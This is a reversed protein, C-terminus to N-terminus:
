LRYRMQWRCQATHTARVTAPAPHQRQRGGGGTPAGGALGTHADQAGAWSVSFRQSQGYAPRCQHNIAQPLAEALLAAAEMVDTRQSSSSSGSSGSGSGSGSSSSSDALATMAIGHKQLRAAEGTPKSSCTM